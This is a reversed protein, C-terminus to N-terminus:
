ADAPTRRWRTVIARQAIRLGLVIACTVVALLAAALGWRTGDDPLLGVLRDISLAGPGSFALALSVIALVFPYEFGGEQAFYGKDWHAVLIAGFMAGAVAAAGLPTFLGLVLLLGGGAEAGGLLLAHPRGPRFGMSELLRATGKLGHGGLAGSLKQVGHAAVTFGVVLRIVLLATDM